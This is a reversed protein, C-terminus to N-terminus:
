VREGMYTGLLEQLPPCECPSFERIIREELVAFEKYHTREEAKIHDYVQGMGQEQLRLSRELYADFAAEEERLSARVDLLLQTAARCDCQEPM